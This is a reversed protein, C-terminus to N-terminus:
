LACAVPRHDTRRATCEGGGHLELVDGDGRFSVADALAGWEAGPLQWDAKKGEPSVWM